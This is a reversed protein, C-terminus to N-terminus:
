LQGGKAESKARAAPRYVFGHENRIAYEHGNAQVLRAIFVQKDKVTKMVGTIQVHEGPQVSLAGKGQMAFFGLSADVAGAKTGVFVHSGPVLNMERTPSKVVNSVTGSLTVENRIDYRLHTVTKTKVDSTQAHLPVASMGLALVLPGLVRFQWKM